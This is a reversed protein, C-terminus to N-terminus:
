LESHTCFSMIVNFFSFILIYLSFQSPELTGPNLSELSIEKKVHGRSGKVGQTRSRQKVDQNEKILYNMM